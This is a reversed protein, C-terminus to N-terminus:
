EFPPDESTASLMWSSQARWLRALPARKFYRKRPTSTQPSRVPSAAQGLGQMAEACWGVASCALNSKPSGQFAEVTGGQRLQPM